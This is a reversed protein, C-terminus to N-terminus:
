GVIGAFRLSFRLTWCAAWISLAEPLGCAKIFPGLAGADPWQFNALVDPLPIMSAATFANDLLEGYALALIDLGVNTASDFFGLLFNWFLQIKGAIWALVNM